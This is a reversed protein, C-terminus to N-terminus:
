VKNSVDNGDVFIQENTAELKIKRKSEKQKKDGSEDGKSKEKKEKKEGGQLSLDTLLFHRDRALM